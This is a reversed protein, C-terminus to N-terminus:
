TTMLAAHVSANRLKVAVVPNLEKVAEEFPRLGVNQYPFMRFTRTDADVRLCVGTALSEQSPKFWGDGQTARFVHHLIADYADYDSQLPRPIIACPSSHPPPPPDM